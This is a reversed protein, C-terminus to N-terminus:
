YRDGSNRIRQDFSVVGANSGRTTPDFTGAAQEAALETRYDSFTNANTMCYQHATYWTNKASDTIWAGNPHNIYANEPHHQYLSVAIVKTDSNARITTVAQQTLYEWHLAVSAFSPSTGVTMTSPENMLDYGLVAAHSKWQTSIRTWLDTWHAVTVVGNNIPQRTATGSVDTYYAGYNHVDLLVRIGATVCADLFVNIRAVETASLAAGLTPQLTEWRLGYRVFNVGRGAMYAASTSDPYSYQTPFPPPNLNSFPGTAATTGYAFDGGAVNTGFFPLSNRQEYEYYQTL